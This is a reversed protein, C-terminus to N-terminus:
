GELFDLFIDYVDELNNYGPWALVKYRGQFTKDIFPKNIKLVPPTNLM